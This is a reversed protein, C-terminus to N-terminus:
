KYNWQLYYSMLNREIGEDLIPERGHFSRNTRVFGFVSNPLFSVTHLNRFNSFPHHVFGECEFKPDMHEYISTGLHPQNAYRPFYFLLTVVRIPHDTHPGISYNTYDRILEATSSFKVNKYHPGFREKIFSDFKELLMSCWKTSNIATTFKSWFLLQPFPLDTLKEEELSLVFRNLYTRPDVKGTTSLSQYSATNPLQDLLENYFEEPFLKDIYFHPYPDTKILANSIRDLVHALVDEELQFIEKWRLRAVDGFYNSINKVTL